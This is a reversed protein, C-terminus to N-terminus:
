DEIELMAEEGIKIVTPRSIQWQDEVFERWNIEKSKSKETNILIKLYITIAAARDIFNRDPDYFKRKLSSMFKSDYISVYTRKGESVVRLRPSNQIMMILDLWQDIDKPSIGIKQFASKPVQSESYWDTQKQLFQFIAKCREILSRSQKKMISIDVPL